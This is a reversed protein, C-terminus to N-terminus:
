HSLRHVWKMMLVYRYHCSHFQAHTANAYDYSGTHVTCVRNCCLAVFEVYLKQNILRAINM